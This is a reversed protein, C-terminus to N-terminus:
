YCGSDVVKRDTDTELLFSAMRNIDRYVGACNLLEAGHVDATLCRYAAPNWHSHFSLAEEARVRDGGLFDPRATISKQRSM